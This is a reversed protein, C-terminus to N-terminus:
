KEMEGNGCKPGYIRRFIKREFILVAQEEKKTFTWAEAGCTVVPRTLTKHLIIKTAGSLLRSRFLIIAAFYTRNGALIRRQIEKKWVIIM